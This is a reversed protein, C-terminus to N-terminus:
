KDGRFKELYKVAEEKNLKFKKQLKEIIRDEPIKEELNDEILIQIGQQIGQQIGENLGQIKGRKMAKEEIAESLNCMESLEEGLEYEMKMGYDRVLSEEKEKRDMEPSLLTNLFGHLTGETGKKLKENLCIIIVSLKDYSKRPEPINGIIDEKTIRYEAM